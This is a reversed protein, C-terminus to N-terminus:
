NLTYKGSIDKNPAAWVLQVTDLLYHEVKNMRINSQQFIRTLNRNLHCGSVKMSVPDIASQLYGVFRNSSIGHEMLLILGDRKCWKNFSTLVKVPDEYGCLTLTSVVTDFSDDPFSLSEVDSHIFEARVGSEAAAEKAKNLMEKSFDVATVVVDETYFQFNAGAGAGVELVTGKACRILKERWKKETQKRRRMEYVIAQKNFKQILKENSM